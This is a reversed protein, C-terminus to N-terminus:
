NSLVGKKQYTNLTLSRFKNVNCDYCWLLLRYRSSGGCNCCFCCRYCPCSHICVNVDDDDDGDDDDDDDDDADFVAIVDVFRVVHM